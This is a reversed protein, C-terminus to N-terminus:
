RGCLYNRRASASIHALRAALAPSNAVSEVAQLLSSATVDEDDLRVTEPARDANSQMVRPVLSLVDDPHSIWQWPDADVGNEQLWSSYTNYYRRGSESERIQM